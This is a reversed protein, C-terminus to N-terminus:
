FKHDRINPELDGERDATKKKKAPGDSPRKRKYGKNMNHTGAKEGSHCPRGRTCRMDEFYAILEASLKKDPM